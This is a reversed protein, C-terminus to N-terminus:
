IGLAHLALPCHMMTLITSALRSGEGLALESTSGNIGSLGKMEKVSM